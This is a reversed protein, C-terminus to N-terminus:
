EDENKIEGSLLIQITQKYAKIKERLEKIRFERNVFMRNMELLEENIKRLEATKAEVEKNLNEQYNLLQNETKKRETIDRMIVVISDLNGTKDFIPFIQLDVPYLEGNKKSCMKEGSWIQKVKLSSFFEHKFENSRESVIVDWFDLSIVNGNEYGSMEKFANNVFEIKGTADTLIVGDKMLRVIEALKLNEREIEIRDTIDRGLGIIEKVNGDEDLLAKNSWALWRWGNITLARQEHYCTHPPKNLKELSKRTLERDEEHVLPFFNKGLLEDESKGFMKCYAPNVFLLNGDKDAKVLLDVQNEVILKYKEKSSRLDSEIKKRHAIDDELERTKLKLIKKLVIINYAVAIAILLAILLLSIIIRWFTRNAYISMPKLSIWRNIIEDKKEKPINELSKSIIRHFIPWDNRVQIALSVHYGTEGAIVLNSIGEKEIYYLVGPLNAIFADLEGTAVRRLGDILNGLPVIQIEPHELKILEHWVYGSVMGVEKGSLKKINSLDRNNRTTIIIGPFKIYEKTFLMYKSREPTPAAAALLDIEKSKAKSLVEAWSKCYIIKLSIGLDEAILNMIEASIGMYNGNEDIWEIPPYDPDPALRIVPHQKLWYKEQPTLQVATLFTIKFIFFALLIKEM